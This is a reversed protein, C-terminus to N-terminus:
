KSLSTKYPISIKFITGKGLESVVDINGNHSKVIDYSLSLGLGTGQGTPKTTFFPQFIKSKIEESIGKGNDRISIVINRKVKNTKVHVTPSYNSTEQKKRENVAHFANTIINLVVRGMEQPVVYVKGISEDFDTEMKANFTADKARLGHFALRLYEDTLNNIDTLVHEDSSSRSHQLMGKVISDARKGHHTIKGLNLKLDNAIAKVEEFDGNEIEDNMEDLMENSVESFNNVFNLPNQIEHAIGATLEGLSAMKEAHILQNQTSTLDHLANELEEKQQTIEATREEVQKELLMKLEEGKQIEKEKDEAKLREKKLANQQRRVIVLTAIFWIFAFTSATELFGAFRDVNEPSFLKILDALTHVIVVPLIVKAYPRLSEFEKRTHSFYVISFIVIHSLWIAIFRLQHISAGLILVAVSALLAYGFYKTWKPDLAKTSEHTQLYRFLVISIIFEVHM